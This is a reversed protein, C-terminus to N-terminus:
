IRAWSFNTQIYEAQSCPYFNDFFKELFTLSKLAFKRHLFCSLVRWFAQNVPNKNRYM